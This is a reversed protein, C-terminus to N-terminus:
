RCDQEGAAHIRVRELFSTRGEDFNGRSRAPRFLNGCLEGDGGRENRGDRGAGAKERRMKTHELADLRMEDEPALFRRCGYPSLRAEVRKTPRRSGAKTNKSSAARSLCGSDRAKASRKPRSSRTSSTRSTRRRFERVPTRC